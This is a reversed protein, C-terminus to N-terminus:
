GYDSNSCGINEILEKKIKNPVVDFKIFCKRKKSFVMITNKNKKNKNNNM